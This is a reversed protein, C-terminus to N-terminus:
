RAHFLGIFFDQVRLAGDVKLVGEGCLIRRHRPFLAGLQERGEVRKGSIAFRQIRLLDDVLFAFHQALFFPLFEVFLQVKQPGDVPFAALSCFIDAAAKRNFRKYRRAHRDAIKLLHRPLVPASLVMRNRASDHLHLKGM